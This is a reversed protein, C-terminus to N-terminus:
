RSYVTDILNKYFKALKTLFKWIKQYTLRNNNEKEQIQACFGYTALITIGCDIEALTARQSLNGNVSITLSYHYLEIVICFHLLFKLLLQDPFCCTFVFIHVLICGM